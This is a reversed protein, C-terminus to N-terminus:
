QWRWRGLWTTSATNEKGPAFSEPVEYSPDGVSGRIMQKQCVSSSLSLANTVMVENVLSATPLLWMFALM